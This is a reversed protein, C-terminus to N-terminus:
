SSAGSLLRVTQNTILKQVGATVVVDGQSLGGKLVVKDGSYRDVSIPRLSVTSSKPDVVWVAPKGDREFLASGPLAVVGSLDVSLSGTVTAGLRMEAPADPLSIRVEFTRTTSDAQPSVYRVTGLIKTGPDNTLTVTVPLNKPAGDLLSASVNFAGEREGPQASRVVVQGPSVVQGTNASVATIVGDADAVLRTYGLNDEAQQLRAATAEVQSQSGKLSAVARDYVARPTYGDKLLEAQRAEDARDKTLMAQAAAADARAALLNQQWPQPDLRALVDGKKVVSGVDVPREIIKGDIRFGLDSEYRAKIEGTLAPLEASGGPQVTMTRVPRIDPASASKDDCGAIMILALLPALRSLPRGTSTRVMM